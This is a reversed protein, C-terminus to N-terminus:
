GPGGTSRRTGRARGNGSRGARRGGESERGGDAGAGTGRATASRLPIIVFSLNQQVRHPSSGKDHHRRGSRSRRSWLRSYSVSQRSADFVRRLLTGTRPPVAIRRCGELVTGAPFGRSHTAHSDDCTSESKGPYGGAYLRESVCSSAMFGRQCTRRVTLARFSPSRRHSYAYWNRRCHAISWSM